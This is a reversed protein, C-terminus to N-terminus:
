QEQDGVAAELALLTKQPEFIDGSEALERLKKLQLPALKRRLREFALDLVDQTVDTLQRRGEKLKDDSM